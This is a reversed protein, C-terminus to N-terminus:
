LFFHHVNKTERLKKLEPRKYKYMSSDIYNAKGYDKSKIDIYSNKLEEIHENLDNCKDIHEKISGNHCPWHFVLWGWNFVTDRRQSWPEGM